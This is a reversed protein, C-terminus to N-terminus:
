SHSHENRREITLITVDQGSKQFIIRIDGKRVRFVGPAGKLQKMDLNDFKHAIIRELIAQVREYEKASLRALAKSIRDTM